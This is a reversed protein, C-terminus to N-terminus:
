YGELFGKERTPLLAAREFEVVVDGDQNRGTTRVSVIGEGERSESLRKELVESEAYVTDGPFVPNPMSVHEYGLTAVGKYSIDTVSMASVIAFTLTGPVPCRGFETQEGWGEDFHLGHANTTLLAWWYSDTRTLTRGPRHEYVAGAELEDFFRGFTERYRNEDVEVYGHVM